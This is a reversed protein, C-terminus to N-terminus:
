ESKEHKGLKAQGTSNGRSRSWEVPTSEHHTRPNENQIRFETKQM